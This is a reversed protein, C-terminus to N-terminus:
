KIFIVKYLYRQPLGTVKAKIRLFDGTKAHNWIDKVDINLTKSEITLIPRNGRVLVLDWKEIRVNSNLENRAFGVTWKTKIKKTLPRSVDLRDKGSINIVLNNDNIIQSEKLGLEKHHVFDIKKTLSVNETRIFKGDKLVEIKSISIVVSDWVVLLDSYVRNSSFVISDKLSNFGYSIKGERIVYSTDAEQFKFEFLLPIFYGKVVNDSVKENNCYVEPFKTQSFSQNILLFLILTFLIKM